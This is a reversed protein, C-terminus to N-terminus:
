GQTSRLNAHLPTSSNASQARPAQAADTDPVALKGSAAVTDQSGLLSSHTFTVAARDAVYRARPSPESAFRRASRTFVERLACSVDPFERLVAVQMRFHKTKM